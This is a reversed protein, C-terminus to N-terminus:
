GEGGESIECEGELMEILNEVKEEEFTQTERNWGIWRAFASAKEKSVEKLGSVGFVKEWIYTSLVGPFVKEILKFFAIAEDNKMPTEKTIGGFIENRLSELDVEEKEPKEEVQTYQERDPIAVEQSYEKLEEVKVAKVEIGGDAREKWEEVGSLYLPMGLLVDPCFLSVGRSMARYFLMEQPVTAWNHKVKGSASNLLGQQRADNLTFTSTGIHEWKGERFEFFDITCEEKTSKVVRYDYKGSQKIRSALLKPKVFIQKTGDKAPIVDIGLVAQMPELQLARGLMIKVALQEATEEFLQSRAVMMALEKVAEIEQPLPIIAKEM